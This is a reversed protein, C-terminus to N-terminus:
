PSVVLLNGEVVVKEGGKLGKLIEVRDGDRAGEHILRRSYKGDADAVVVARGDHDSLVAKIPVMIAMHEAVDVKTTVYMGGRLVEQPNSIRSRVMVTRTNADVQRGVYSVKGAFHKGPNAPTSVEVPDGVSLLPLDADYASADVYVERTDAVTLLVGGTAVVQGSTVAVNTVIGTIPARVEMMATSAARGDNGAVSVATMDQAVRAGSVEERSYLDRDRKLTATAVTVSEQAVRTNERAPQLNQRAIGVGRRGIEVLRQTDQLVATAKLWRTKADNVDAQSYIGSQFLEQKRRYDSEANALEARAQAHSDRAQSLTTEAQTLASQAQGLASLASQAQNQAQLVAMQDQELRALMQTGTQGFANNVACLVQGASVHQGVRVRLDTLKGGVPATVDARGDETLVVQGNLQLLRHLSRRSVTELRVEPTPLPSAETNPAAAKESAPARMWWQAINLALLVVVLPILWRSSKM